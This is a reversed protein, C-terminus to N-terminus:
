IEEIKVSGITPYVNQGRNNIVLYAANASATFQKTITSTTTTLSSNLKSVITQTITSPRGTNLTNTATTLSNSTSTDASYERLGSSISYTIKYTKGKVFNYPMTYTRAVHVIAQGNVRVYDFNTITMKSTSITTTTSVLTINKTVNETEILQVGSQSAYGSASVSWEVRTGPDVEISTREEGDIIVTATSPTPNITFVPKKEELVINLTTNESVVYGNLLPPLISKSVTKYGDCSVSYEVATGKIVTISNREEDNIIVKAHSPTPNIILTVYEIEINPTEGLYLDGEFYREFVTTKTNLLQKYKYDFSMESVNSIPYALDVEILDEPKLVFQEMGTTNCYPIESIQNESIPLYFYVTKTNSSIISTSTPIQGKYCLYILERDKQLEIDLTTNKTLRLSNSIPQYNAASVDYEILENEYFHQSKTMVGNIIVDADTPTTNITLLYSNKDSCPPTEGYMSYILKDGVKEIASEGQLLSYSRNKFYVPM